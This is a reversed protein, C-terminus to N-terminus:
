RMTKPFLPLGRRLRSLQPSAPKCEELWRRKCLRRRHTAAVLIRLSHNRGAVEIQDSFHLLVGVLSYLQTDPEAEEARRHWLLRIGFISM